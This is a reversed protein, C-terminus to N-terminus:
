GVKRSNYKEENIARFTEALKEPSGHEKKASRQLLTTSYPHISVKELSDRFRKSELVPNRPSVVPNSLSRATNRAKKKVPTQETNM